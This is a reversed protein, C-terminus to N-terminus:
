PKWLHHPKVLASDKRSTPDAGGANSDRSPQQQKEWSVSLHACPAKLSSKALALPTSLPCIGPM